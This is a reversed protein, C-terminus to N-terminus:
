PNLKFILCFSKEIQYSYNFMKQPIKLVRIKRAWFLTALTTANRTAARRKSKSPSVNRTASRSNWAPRLPTVQSWGCSGQRACVVGTVTRISMPGTRTPVSCVPEFNAGCNMGVSRLPFFGNSVLILKVTYGDSIYFYYVFSLFSLFFASKYWVTNFFTPKKVSVIIDHYKERIQHGM